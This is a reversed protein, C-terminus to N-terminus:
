DVLSSMLVLVFVEFVVVGLLTRSMAFLSFTWITSTFNTSVKPLQCCKLTGTPSNLRSENLSPKPKSPDEIRPQFDMSDESMSAIGSGVVACIAAGRAQGLKLASMPNKSMFVQEIACEGPQWEVAIDRIQAFINGLRQPFDDGQVRLHGHTLHVSRVGDSEIVGYGTIVSGPDIGLIRIFTNAM